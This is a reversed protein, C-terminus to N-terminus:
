FDTTLWEDNHDSAINNVVTINNVIVPDELHINELKGSFAKRRFLNKYNGAKIKRLQNEKLPIYCLNSLFIAELKITEFSRIGNRHCSKIGYNQSIYDQEIFDTFECKIKNVATQLIGM